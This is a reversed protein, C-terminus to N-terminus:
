GAVMKFPREGGENLEVDEMADGRLVTGLSPLERLLPEV